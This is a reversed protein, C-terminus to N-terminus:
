AEQLCLIYLEYLFLVLLFIKFLQLSSSSSFGHLFPTIYHEITNVNFSIIIM